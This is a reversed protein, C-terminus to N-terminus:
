APSGATAARYAEVLPDLSAPPRHQWATQMWAFVLQRFAGTTARDAHREVLALCEPETGSEPIAFALREGLHNLAARYLLSLADRPLRTQALASELEAPLGGQARLPGALLLAALAVLGRLRTRGPGTGKLM